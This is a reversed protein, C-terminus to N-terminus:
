STLANESETPPRLVRAYEDLINTTAKNAKEAQSGQKLKAPGKAMQHVTVKKVTISLPKKGNTSGSSQSAIQM